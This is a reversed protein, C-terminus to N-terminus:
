GTKLFVATYEPGPRRPDQPQVSEPKAEVKWRPAAFLGLATVPPISFPPPDKGEVEMLVALLRGGSRLVRGVLAEYDTFRTPGVACLCTQELVADMTGDLDRPLTFIDAQRVDLTIGEARARETLSTVAEPAFDVALVTHGEKALWLAEHGRGCGPIFVRSRPPLWKTCLARAPASPAGLDWNTREERYRTRWFELDPVIPM